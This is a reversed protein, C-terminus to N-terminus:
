HFMLSCRVHLSVKKDGLTHRAKETFAGGGLHLRSSILAPGPASGVTGVM